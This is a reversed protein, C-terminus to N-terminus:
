CDIRHIGDCKNFDYICFPNISFCPCYKYDKNNPIKAPPGKKLMFLTRIVVQFFVLVCFLVFVHLVGHRLMCKSFFVIIKTNKPNPTKFSTSPV